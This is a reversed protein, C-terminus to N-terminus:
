CNQFAKEWKRTESVGQRVDNVALVFVEIIDDVLDINQTDILSDLLQELQVINSECNNLIENITRVANIQELDYDKNDNSILEKLRGIVYSINSALGCINDKFSPIDMIGSRLDEAMSSASQLYDPVDYATAPIIDREYSMDPMVANCSPCQREWQQVNAGCMPCSYSPINKSSEEYDLGLMAEGTIKLREMAEPLHETDEVACIEFMQQLATLHEDVNPIQANSNYLAEAAPRLRELRMSLFDWNRRGALVAQGAELIDNLGSAKSLKPKDFCYSARRHLADELQRVSEVIAIVNLITLDRENNQMSRYTVTLIQGLRQLLEFCEAIIEAENEDYDSLEVSRKFGSYFASLVTDCARLYTDACKLPLCNDDCDVLEEIFKALPPVLVPFNDDIIPFELEM